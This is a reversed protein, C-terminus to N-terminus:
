IKTQKDLIENVADKIAKAVKQDIDITDIETEGLYLGSKEKELRRITRICESLDLVFYDLKM